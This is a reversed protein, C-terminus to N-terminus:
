AKCLHDLRGQCPISNQPSLNPFLPDGAYKIASMFSFKRIIDDHLCHYVLVPDGALIEPLFLLPLYQVETMCEPM